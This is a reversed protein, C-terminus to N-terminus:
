LEPYIKTNDNSLSFNFGKWSNKPEQLEEQIQVQLRIKPFVESGPIDELSLLSWIGTKGPHM